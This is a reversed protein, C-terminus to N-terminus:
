RRCCWGELTPFAGRAGPAFETAIDGIAHVRAGGAPSLFLWQDAAPWAVLLRDGRPSWAIEGLRGPTGFLRRVAGTRVDVLSVEAHSRAGRDVQSLVAATRGDPALAVGAIRGAAPLRRPKPIRLRGSLKDLVLLRVRVAAPSAELLAGGPGWELAEIGPLAAARGLVAGSDVDRLVIRGDADVYALQHVGSPAWSPALPAVRPDLPADASGDAHVVRLGAGARYAIRYGSPSWRPDRVAAPATLSWHPTGDPAVATLTRGEVAALYLGHPSWSAERYDGLLRRSGDPQVVWPGAQSRVVLRGGGPIRTLGREANPVGATFVDGVWDRVAAGAPSLVVAGLLAAVALAVAARPTVRRVARRQAAAPREDYAAMAMALGRREAEAAAPLPAERLLERVRGEPAAGGRAAAGRKM